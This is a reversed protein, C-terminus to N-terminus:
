CDEGSITALMDDDVTDGGSLNHVVKYVAQM